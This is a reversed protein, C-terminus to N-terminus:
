RNDNIHWGSGWQSDFCLIKQEQPEYKFLLLLTQLCSDERNISQCQYDVVLGHLPNTHAIGILVLKIIKDVSISQDNGKGIM